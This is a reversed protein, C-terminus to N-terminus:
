LMSLFRGSSALLMQAKLNNVCLFLELEWTEAYIRSPQTGTVGNDDTILMLIMFKLLPYFTVACVVLSLVIYIEENTPPHERKGYHNEMLEFLYQDQEIWSKQSCDMLVGVFIIKNALVKAQAITAELSNRSGMFMTNLIHKDFEKSVTPFQGNTYHDLRFADATVLKNKLKKMAEVVVENDGFDSCNEAAMNDEIEDVITSSEYSESSNAGFNEGIERIGVFYVSFDRSSEFNEDDKHALVEGGSDSDIHLLHTEYNSFLLKTNGCFKTEPELSNSFISGVNEENVERILVELSIQRTRQPRKDFVQDGVGESELAGIKVSSEKENSIGSGLRDGDIEDRQPSKDFMQDGKNGLVMADEDEVELPEEYDLEHDLSDFLVVLLLLNAAWNMSASRGGLKRRAVMTCLIEHFVRPQQSVSLAMPIQISVSINMTTTIHM